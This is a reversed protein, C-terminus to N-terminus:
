FTILKYVYTLTEDQSTDLMFYLWADTALEGKEGEWGNGHLPLEMIKFCPEHLVAVQQKILSVFCFLLLFLSPKAAMILWKSVSYEM